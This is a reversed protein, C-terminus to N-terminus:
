PTSSDAAGAILAIELRVRWQMSAGPALLAIGTNQGRWEPGFADPVNTEPGISVWKKDAPAIVRLNAINPSVSVVRLALNYSPDRLEAAPQPALGTVALQTYTADIDTSGLRTGREHPSDHAFDLASGSVNATQGTPLGTTHSKAWTTSSPLSLLADSRDGSPIAFLPHWGVGIPVPTTGTNTASVTMDLTHAGLEVTVTVDMTSPWLGNFNGPHFVGQAYQGDPLVDSRVSVSPQDLFLGDTAISAGAALQPLHLPIGQFAADLIGPQAAPSGSVKDAWPLLIPAGMAMSAEGHTDDGKGTLISTAADISPSALLATEGHGPVMATIQFLEMGRGPLLTASLFEVDKGIATASRTLRIPDQGGPGSIKPLLDPEPPNVAHNVAAGIKHLKGRGRMRAAILLCLCLLAVLIPTMRGSKSFRRFGTASQSANQSTPVQKM